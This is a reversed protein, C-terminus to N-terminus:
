RFPEEDRPQPNERRFRAEAESPRERYAPESFRPDEMPGSEAFEAGVREICGVLTCPVSVSGCLFERGCVSCRAGFLHGCMSCRAGSLAALIM